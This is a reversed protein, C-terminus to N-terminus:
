WGVWQKDNLLEELLSPIATAASGGISSYRMYIDFYVKDGVVRIKYIMRKM